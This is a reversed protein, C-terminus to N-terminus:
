KEAPVRITWSVKSKEAKGTTVSKWDWGCIEGISGTVLFNETSVMSDVHSDPHAEIHYSPRRLENETRLPRLIKSIRCFAIKNILFYIRFQLMLKSM